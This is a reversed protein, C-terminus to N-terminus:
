MVIRLEDESFVEDCFDCTGVMDWDSLGYEEIEEETPERLRDEPIGGYGITRAEGRSVLYDACNECCIMRYDSSAKVSCAANVKKHIYRKM